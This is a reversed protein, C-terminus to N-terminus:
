EFHFGDSYFELEAGTYWSIIKSKKQGIERLFRRDDESPIIMDYDPHSHAVLELKGDMLLEKLEDSFYCHEPTGHLVVDKEKGRMLAFEDGTYASLYALDKIEIGDLTFAGWDGSQPIRDLIMKRHANLGAEGLRIATLSTRTSASSALPNSLQISYKM